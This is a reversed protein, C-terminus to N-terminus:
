GSSRARAWFEYLEKACARVCARVSAECAVFAGFHDGTVRVDRAQSSSRRFLENGGSGGGGDGDDGGGGGSSNQRHRRQLQGAVAAEVFGEFTRVSCLSEVAAVPSRDHLPPSCEFVEARAVAAHAVLWRANSSGSDDRRRRGRAGRHATSTFPPAPLGGCHDAPVDKRRYLSAHRVWAGDEVWPFSSLVAARRQTGQGRGQGEVDQGAGREQRISDNIGGIDGGGSSGGGGGSSGGGGGVVSSAGDRGLGEQAAAADVGGSPAGNGSAQRGDDDDSYDEEAGGGGSGNGVKGCLQYYYARMSDPGSAYLEVIKGFFYKDEKEEEEEDDEDAIEARNEEGEGDNDNANDGDSSVHSGNNVRAVDGVGFCYGSMWFRAFHIKRLGYLEVAREASGAGRVEAEFAACAAQPAMPEGWLFVRTAANRPHRSAPSLACWARCVARCTWLTRMPLYEFLAETLAPSCESLGCGSLRAQAEVYGGLTAGCTTLLAPARCTKCKVVNAPTDNPRLLLLPPWADRLPQQQQPPSQPQQQQRQHQRQQQQQHHDLGPPAQATAFSEIAASGAHTGGQATQKLRPLTGGCFRCVAPSATAPVPM